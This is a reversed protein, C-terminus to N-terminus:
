VNLEATARGVAARSCWISELWHELGQACYWSERRVSNLEDRLGEESRGETEM